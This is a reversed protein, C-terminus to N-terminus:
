YDYGIKEHLKKLKKRKKERKLNRSEVVSNQAAM